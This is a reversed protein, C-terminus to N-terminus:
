FWVDWSMELLTRNKCMAFRNQQPTYPMTCWHSIGRDCLFVNFELSIYEGGCDKGLAFLKNSWFMEVTDLFMKLYPFAENM